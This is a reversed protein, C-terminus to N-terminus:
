RDIRRLLASRNPVGGTIDNIGELITMWRVGPQSLADHFLRALGSGNDGLLRNGSIGANVVAVHATAKNAQLRAAFVAPWM